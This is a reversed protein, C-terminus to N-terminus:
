TKGGQHSPHCVVTFHCCPSDDLEMDQGIVTTGTHKGLTQRATEIPPLKGGLTKGGKEWGVHSCLVQDMSVKRKRTPWTVGPNAYVRLPCSREKWM